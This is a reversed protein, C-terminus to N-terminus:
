SAVPELTSASLADCRLHLIARAGLESWRMGARKMRQQVLHKAGGEVAGSGLPLGQRRFLLYQMRLANATFYGRERQLVKLIAETPAPTERLLALLPVPGHRWLLHKAHEAWATAEPTDEGHLAKSLDWLACQLHGSVRLRHRVDLLPV